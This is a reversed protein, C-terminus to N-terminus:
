RRPAAVQQGYARIRAQLSPNKLTAAVADAIERIRSGDEPTVIRAVNGAGAEIVSLRALRWGDDLGALSMTQLVGVVTRATGQRVNGVGTKVQPRELVAPAAGALFELTTIVVANQLTAQFDLWPGLEAAYTVVNEDTKALVKPDTTALDSAGTGALLYTTGIRNAGTLLEGIKGTDALPVTGTGLATPDFAADLLTAITPDTRRPLTEGKLVGVRRTFEDAARKASALKAEDIAAPSPTSWVVALGLLLARGLSLM